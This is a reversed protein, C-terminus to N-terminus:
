TANMVCFIIRVNNGHANSNNHFPDILESM